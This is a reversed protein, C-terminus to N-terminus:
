KRTVALHLTTGDQTLSEVSYEAGAAYAQVLIGPHGSSGYMGVAERAADAATTADAPSTVVTVGASRAATRPKVVCPFGVQPDALAARLGADDRALVTYPARVGAMAFAEAMTAKDRAARARGPDNGPM